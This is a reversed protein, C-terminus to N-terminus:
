RVRFVIMNIQEDHSCHPVNLLWNTLNLLSLLSLKVNKAFKDIAKIEVTM